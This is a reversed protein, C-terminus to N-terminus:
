EDPKHFIGAAYWGAITVFPMIQAGITEPTFESWPMIRSIPLGLTADFALRLVLYSIFVGVIGPSFDQRVFCIFFYLIGGVLPGLILILGIALGLDSSDDEGFPVTRLLPMAMGAFFNSVGLLSLYWAPQRQLILVGFVAIGILLALNVAMQNLPYVPEDEDEAVDSIRPTPEAAGSDADYHAGSVPDYVKDPYYRSKQATFTGLAPVGAGNGNGEPNLPAAPKVEQRKPGKKVPEPGRQLAELPRSISQSRIDKRCWSCVDPTDSEMGCWRCYVKGGTRVATAAGGTLPQPQGVPAARVHATTPYPESPMAPKLPAAGIQPEEDPVDGLPQPARDIPSVAVVAPAENVAASAPVVPTAPPAPAAIPVIPEVPRSEVPAESPPLSAPGSPTRAIPIVAPPETGLGPKKIPIAKLDPRDEPAQVDAARYGKGTPPIIPAIPAAPKPTVAPADARPTPSKVAPLPAFPVPSLDDDFDDIDGLPVAGPLPRLGGATAGQPPQPESATGGAPPASPTTFPQHCWSCADSTESELGCWKCFM